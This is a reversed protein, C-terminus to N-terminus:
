LTKYPDAYYVKAFVEFDMSPVAFAERDINGVERGIVHRYLFLLASLAIKQM